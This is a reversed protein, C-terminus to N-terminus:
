PNEGLRGQLFPSAVPYWRSLGLSKQLTTGHAAANVESKGMTGQEFKEPIDLLFNPRSDTKKASVKHNLYM